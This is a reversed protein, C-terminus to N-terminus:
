KLRPISDVLKQMERKTKTNKAKEIIEDQKKDDLRLFENFANVNHALAMTFGLPMKDGQSDLM